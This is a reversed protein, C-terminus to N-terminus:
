PKLVIPGDSFVALRRRAEGLPLPYEYRRDDADYGIGTVYQDHDAPVNNAFWDLKRAPFGNVDSIAYSDAQSLMRNATAEDVWFGEPPADAPWVPGSHATPGWSNLLFLGPRNGGRVGLISMCHPWVGQPRCFGDADRQMQFGQNSCVPVTYGQAIARKADAFTKVLAASKVPHNKAEALVNDPVGSSGLQRARAPSFTSLDLTGYKDMATIGFQTVFEKAWVGQSGDGSIQGKGIQVRSGGYIVEASVPRFREPRNGMVIQTALLVDTSHKWGCGVCCGVSLQNVWTRKGGNVKDVSRWLFVDDDGLQAKGAPTGDFQLTKAPDLADAKEEDSPPVWGFSQVQLPLPPPTPPPGKGGTAYYLVTVTVTTIVWPLYKAAIARWPNAPQPAPAPTPLPPPADPTDAM